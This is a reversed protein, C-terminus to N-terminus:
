CGEVLTPVPIRSWITRALFELIHRCGQMMRECHPVMFDNQRWWLNQKSDPYHAIMSKKWALIQPSLRSDGQTRWPYAGKAILWRVSRLQVYDIAVHLPRSGHTFNWESTLHNGKWQHDIPAGAKLCAQLTRLNGDIAGVFLPLWSLQRGAERYLDLILTHYFFKSAMVLSCGGDSPSLNSLVKLLIERPLRCLLDDCIFGKAEVLTDEVGNPTWLLARTLRPNHLAGATLVLGAIKRGRLALVDRNPIRLPEKRWRAAEQLWEPYHGKILDSECILELTRRTGNENKEYPNVM